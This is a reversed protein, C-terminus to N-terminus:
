EFLQCIIDPASKAVEVVFEPFDTITGADLTFLASLVENINTESKILVFALSVVTLLLLVWKNRALFAICSKVTRRFMFNPYYLTLRRYALVCYTAIYTVLSIVILATWSTLLHYKDHTYQDEVHVLSVVGLNSPAEYILSNLDCVAGFADIAWRCSVLYSLSDALSGEDFSFIIGSFVIQFLVLIPAIYSPNNFLSSCLLGITAASVSCLFVTTLIDYTSSYLERPANGAFATFVLYLLISQLLCIVVLVFFVALLYAGSRLGHIQDSAIRSRRSLRHISSFVGSFFSGAALSFMMSKTMTYESYMKDENVVTGLICGILIPLLVLLVSSAGGKITIKFEQGVMIFFQEFFGRYRVTADFLNRFSAIGPTKGAKGFIAEIDDNNAFSRFLLRILDPAIINAFAAHEVKENGLMKVVPSINDKYANALVEFFRRKEDCFLCEGGRAMLIINEAAELAEPDHTVFVITMRERKAAKSLMEMFDDTAGPDLPATPEDLYLVRSGSLFATIIAVRKKEGGSLTAIKAKEKGTLRFDNLLEAIRELREERSRMGSRLSASIELEEMISLEEHLDDFQPLYSIFSSLVKMADSSPNRGCIYICNGLFVDGGDAREIGCLAKLLTSKGCGSPGIIATVEGAPCTIHVDNLLQIKSGKADFGARSLGVARVAVLPHENTQLKQYPMMSETEKSKNDSLTSSRKKPPNM